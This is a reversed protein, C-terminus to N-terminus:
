WSIYVKPNLGKKEKEAGLYFFDVLSKLWTIKSFFDEPSNMDSVEVETDDSSVAHLIAELMKAPDNALSAPAVIGGLGEAISKLPDDDKAM